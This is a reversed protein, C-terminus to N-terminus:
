FFYAGLYDKRYMTWLIDTCLHKYLNKEYYAFDIFFEDILSQIFLSHYM